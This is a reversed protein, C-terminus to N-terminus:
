RGGPYRESDAALPIAIAASGRGAFAGVNAHMAELISMHAPLTRVREDFALEPLRDIVLVLWFGNRKWLLVVLLAFALVLALALAKTVGTVAL